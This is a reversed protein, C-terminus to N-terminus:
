GDDDGHPLLVVLELRPDPFESPIYAALNRAHRVADWEAGSRDLVFYQHDLKVPLASPPNPLHELGVGGVAQKILREIRSGSGIKILGPAKRRLETADMDAGMALYIQAAEFYREEDLATAYISPETAVLPLSVHQTPVVTQLMQRLMGDLATFCASPDAHGYPPLDSPRVDPSFTTLAGALRLMASYLDAPHGSRTEYLHRFYPLHTNVTYLLWFSAVDLVGFDALSRNRQRRTGALTGSRASLLEVLRRAISRLYESAAFDILPPVFHPDLQVGGAESRLLRGARLTAHGELADGEVLLRLNKRAVQIPKEGLGTNEDRRLVVEAYYRTDRDHRRMSVNSGAPRHEPLALYVELAAKDPPWAGEIPKPAPAPDAGPVDFALGDPFIGAASSIRLTGGALAERDIELRSFGWPRFTLASLKFELTQELFRDQTQLHQPSLLVGKTWLVPQMQRM